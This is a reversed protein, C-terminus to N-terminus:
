ILSFRRPKESGRSLTLAGEKADIATVSWGKPLWPTNAMGVAGVRVSGSQSGTQVLAEAHGQSFIVGTFRFDAPFPEPAPAV